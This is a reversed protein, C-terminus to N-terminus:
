NANFLAGLTESRSAWLVSDYLSLIDVPKLKLKHDPNLEGNSSLSKKM